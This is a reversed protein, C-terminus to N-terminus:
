WPAFYEEKRPPVLDPPTKSDQEQAIREYEWQLQCDRTIPPTPVSLNCLMSFLRIFVAGGLLIYCPGADWDIYSESVSSFIADDLLSDDEVQFVSCNTTTGNITFCQDGERFSQFCDNRYRFFTNLALGVTICAVFVSMFKQCNVDYNVWFRLWDNKFTFFYFITALLISRIMKSSAVECANCQDPEVFWVRSDGDCFEDFGTVTTQTTTYKPFQAFLWELLEDDAVNNITNDGGGDDDDSTINPFSLIAELIDDLTMNLVTRQWAVARLGVYITTNGEVFQSFNTDSIFSYSVEGKSFHFHSLIDYNQSIALDTLVVSCWGITSMIMALGFICKRLQFWDARLFGIRGFCEMFPNSELLGPALKLFGNPFMFCCCPKSNPNMVRERGNCRDHIWQIPRGEASLFSSM